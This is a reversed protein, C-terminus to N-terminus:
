LKLYNKIGIVFVAFALGVFAGFIAFINKNPGYKQFTQQSGINQLVIKGHNSDFSNIQENFIEPIDLLVQSSLQKDSGSVWIKILQPAIKEASLSVNSINKSFNDSEILAVATDTFNRAKEQAYFAEQNSTAASLSSTSIFFTSEVRTGKPLGFSSFTAFVAGIITFSVILLVNEKILKTIEKIQM